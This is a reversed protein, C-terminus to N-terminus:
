TQGHHKLMHVVAKLVQNAIILKEKAKTFNPNRWFRRAQDQLFLLLSEPFMLKKGSKSLDTGNGKNFKLDKPKFQASTYQRFSNNNKNATLKDWGSEYISSIFDWAM